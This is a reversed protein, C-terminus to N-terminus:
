RQQGLFQDINSIYKRSNVAQDVDSNLAIVSTFHKRAEVLLDLGSPAASAQQNLVNFKQSYLIGLRYQAYLDQPDYSLAADCYKIASDYHKQLWECDCLGFNAQARLQKWIDTQAARKKTGTGIFWPLVYYNLKGALKSDFDSLTLYQGYETEAEGIGSTTHLNDDSLRLSDAL